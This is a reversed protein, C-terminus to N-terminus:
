TVGTMVVAADADVTKAETMMKKRDEMMAAKAKEMQDKTPATSSTSQAMVLGAGLLALLSM